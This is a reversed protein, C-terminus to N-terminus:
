DSTRASGGEAFVWPRAQKIALRDDWTIKFEIEIAFPEGAPPDYLAAFAEHIVELHSRLLDLQETRLLRGGDPLLNSTALLTHEAGPRLIIEEPTSFAAPNTVLDEGLQTNVYFGDHSGTLPDFSVAVGNAREASYNPHALVAMATRLHDVRHFEREAFARFNWLSAYVQKICKAMHGEDSHQTRSDYLGAGSFGPLDENNTSSRCRISTGEAFSAQLESLADIMWRPMTADRILKRLKSLEERQVDIDSQFDPDALMEEVRRYFGNQRMFEHYFLFPVAFGEPVTGQPLGLRGLVALNAAKVGFARWDEFGIEALPRISRIELDREPMQVAQPRSSTYFREVEDLAAERMTWGSSTVEYRM